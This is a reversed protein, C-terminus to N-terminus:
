RQHFTGSFVPIKNLLKLAEEAKKRTNTNGYKFAEILATHLNPDTSITRAIEDNHLVCELVAVAHQRLLETKHERLIALIPKIADSSALVEIGGELRNADVLLTLLAKLAAETVGTNPHDLCSV